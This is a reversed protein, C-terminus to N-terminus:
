AAPPLDRVQAQDIKLLDCVSAKTDPSGLVFWPRSITGDRLVNFWVYLDIRGKEVGIRGKSFPLHTREFCGALPDWYGSLVSVLDKYEATRDHNVLVLFNFLRHDPNVSEFQKAATHIANSIRNYTPDNRLGGTIEDPPLNKMQKALWSDEQFSKVECYAVEEGARKLIYDPTKRDRMENESFSGVEFGKDQWYRLVVLEDEHLKLFRYAHEGRLGKSFDYEPRMDDDNVVSEQKANQSM